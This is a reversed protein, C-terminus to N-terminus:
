WPVNEESFEIKDGFQEFVTNPLKEVKKPENNGQITTEQGKKTSLFEVNDAVVETVYHKKGDEGEYSRTQIKGELSIQSGQKVYKGVNEAQKRWVVVNIFDAEKEGQENKFARDVALTFKAVTVGTETQRVEPDRTLRGILIVKNM